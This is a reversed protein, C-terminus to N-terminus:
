EEKPELGTPDGEIMAMAQGHMLPLLGPMCGELSRKLQGLEDLSLEVSGDESETIKKSLEFRQLKFISNKPDEDGAVQGLLTNLLVGKLILPVGADEKSKKELITKGTLTRFSQNLDLKM